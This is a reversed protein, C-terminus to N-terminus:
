FTRQLVRLANGSVIRYVIEEAQLRNFPQTLRLDRLETRAHTLLAESLTPYDEVTYFGTLSHIVGDFDSGIAQVDWAPMGHKDLLQAIYVLNNWVLKSWVAPSSNRRAKRIETDSAVRRQDLQIGILGGRRAIQIIDEDYLNIEAPNFLPHEGGQGYARGTVSAHSAFLPLTGSPDLRNLLAYIDVRGQPSTHKLDIYLKRSGSVSSEVVEHGLSSLGLGLGFKQNLLRGVRDPFTQCQGSLHNYFHHCLTFFWPKHEWNKVEELNTLIRNRNPKGDYATQVDWFSHGGEFSQIVNIITNNSAENAEIDKWSSVLRYRATEGTDLVVPQNNGAQWFRYEDRLDQFPSYDEQYLRHIRGRGVQAALNFLARGIRHPVRQPRLFGQEFPHLSSVIVRTGSRACQGMGVQRFRTLGYRESITRTLPTPKHEFWLSTPSTPDEDPVRQRFEGKVHSLGYPRIGPHVHLDVFLPRTGNKLEM